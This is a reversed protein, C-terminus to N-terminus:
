DIEAKTKLGPLVTRVHEALTTALLSPRAESFELAIGITPLLPLGASVVHLDFPVATRTLVSIAHGSRAIAILGALSNSAYAVRYRRNVADMAACAARYDLSMPAALALPLVDQTLIKPEAENAVWVFREERIVERAGADSLSVLAMEIQRRALMPRLESTPACVMRLEVNPHLACFGKLLAPLFAISYDEPCGLSLTGKLSEGSMDALIEDHQALLTEAHALLKEGAATLRMGSGSRHFLPQTITQELRQMQMSLASQTRGIQLAALSISGTRAVLVFNRLLTLDLTPM